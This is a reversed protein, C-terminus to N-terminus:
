EGFYQTVLGEPWPLHLGRSFVLYMYAFTIAALILCRLWGEHSEFRLYLFIGIPLGLPFSFLTIAALFVAVWLALRLSQVRAAANWLGLDDVDGASVAGKRARLTVALQAVGLGLLPLAVVTPFLRAQIEWGAATALVSAALLIVLGIFSLEVYRVIGPRSPM